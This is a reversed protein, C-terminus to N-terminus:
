LGALSSPVVWLVMPTFYSKTDEFNFISSSFQFSAREVCYRSFKFISFKFFVFIFYRFFIFQFLLFNFIAYNAYDGMASSALGTNSCRSREGNGGLLCFFFLLFSSETRKLDEITLSRM